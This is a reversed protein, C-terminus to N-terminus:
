LGTRRAGTPTTEYFSLMGRLCTLSTHTQFGRKVMDAALFIDIVRELFARAREDGTLAYYRAVGDVCMFACGVDSSLAWGSGSGSIHGDVGGGSSDRDLPYVDYLPLAPLYLHEFTSKLLRAALPDDFTAAYDTLARLYWNHGSLQQENVTGDPIGGFFGCANTRAPLDRMMREMCPVKRGSIHYHCLFALLARGERDGPWGPNGLFLNEYDYPPEHLRQFNKEINVAGDPARWHADDRKMVSM